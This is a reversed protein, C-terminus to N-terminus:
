RRVVVPRSVATRGRFGPRAVRVRVSVRHARDKVTLRYAPRTAGRIARGDRLWQYRVSTPAPSWSGATARITRGPRPRGATKVAPRSRLAFSYVPRPGQALPAASWHPTRAGPITLVPAVGCALPESKVWVGDAESWALAGGDPSFSPSAFGAGATMACRYTPWTPVPGSRINGNVAATVLHSEHAEGRVVAFMAGDRSVVPEFLHHFDTTPQADHFWFRDEGALDVVYISDYGTGNLILRSGTVWSPNELHAVGYTWPSTLRTAASVATTWRVRCALRPPCTRHAFTYAIRAGDPSVVAHRVKGGIRDGASDVLDPPDFSNLITGWQDMRHVLTGRAAVVEGRDSSSPSVWPLAATGDFTLRREGSGDPRAVHVDYGKIYVLTGPSIAAAAPANPGPEAASRAPLTSLTLALPVALLM